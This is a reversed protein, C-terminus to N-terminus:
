FQWGIMRKPRLLTHAGPPLATGAQQLLIAKGLHVDAVLLANQKPWFLARRVDIHMLEGAIETEIANM